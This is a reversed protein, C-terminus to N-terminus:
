DRKYLTEYYNFLLPKKPKSKKIYPKEQENQANLNMNSNAEVRGANNVATFKSQAQLWQAKQERSYAPLSNFM